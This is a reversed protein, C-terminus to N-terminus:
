PADGVAARLARRVERELAAVESSGELEGARPRALEVPIEAVIRGPRPSMVAVRDALVVAETVSHTVFLVTRQDAQWLALLEHRLTERTMEDVASFPEDMLLLAPSFAFARAIAVRQQMGGSLEHPRRHLAEGLGLAALLEKPDRQAAPAARRNVELPFTVNGLVSRWGLLAPSQPVYGIRKRRRALAVSEGLISVAGADPEVLGAAIRLLTSKGCGSPGILAVFSGRSIELTCGALAALRARSPGFAKGIGGLCLGEDAHSAGRRGM